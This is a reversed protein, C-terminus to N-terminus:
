GRQYARRLRDTIQALFARNTPKGREPLVTYGFFEELNQLRGYRWASEIAYRIDREVNPAAGGSEEALRAYVHDRLNQLRRGDLVCLELARRLYHTGRMHPAFGLTELTNEIAQLGEPSPSREKAGELAAIAEDWGRCFCLGGLLGGPKPFPASLVPLPRLLQSGKQLLKPLLAIGDTGRLLADCLLADPLSRRMLALARGGDVAEGLVANGSLLVMKEVNKLTKEDRAVILVDM